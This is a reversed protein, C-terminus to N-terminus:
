SGPKPPPPPPGPPNPGTDEDGETAAQYANYWVEYEALWQDIDPQETKKEQESM